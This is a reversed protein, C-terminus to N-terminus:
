QVGANLSGVIGAGGAEFTISLAGGEPAKLPADSPFELSKNLTIGRIILLATAGSSVTLTGTGATATASYSVHIWRVLYTEDTVASKAITCTGNTQEDHKPEVTTVPRKM